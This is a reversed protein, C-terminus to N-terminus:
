NLLNPNRFVAETKNWLDQQEDFEIVQDLSTLVNASLVGSQMLRVAYVVVERYDNDLGYNDGIEQIVSRYTVMEPPSNYFPEWVAIKPTSEKPGLARGITVGGSGIIKNNPRRLPGNNPNLAAIKSFDTRPTIRRTVYGSNHRNRLAKLEATGHVFTRFNRKLRSSQRDEFQTEYGENAREALEWSKQYQEEYNGPGSLRILRYAEFDDRNMGSHRLTEGNGLAVEAIKPYQYQTASVAFSTSLTIILASLWIWRKQM